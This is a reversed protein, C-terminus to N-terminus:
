DLWLASIARRLFPFNKKTIFIKLYYSLLLHNDSCVKGQQVSMKCKKKGFLKLNQFTTRENNINLLSEISHFWLIEHHIPLM